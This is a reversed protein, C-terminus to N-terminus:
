ERRLEHEKEKGFFRLAVLILEGSESPHRALIGGAVGRGASARLHALPVSRGSEGAGVSRQSQLEAYEEMGRRRQLSPLLHCQVRARGETENPWVTAKVRGIRVEAVPKPNAM